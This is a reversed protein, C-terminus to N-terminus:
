ASRDSLEQFEPWLTDNIFREPASLMATTRRQRPYRYPKLGYRRSLAVFLQRSWVDRLSFKMEILGEGVGAIGTGMGFLLEMLDHRANLRESERLGKQDVGVALHDGAM